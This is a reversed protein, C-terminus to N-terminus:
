EDSQNKSENSKEGYYPTGSSGSEVPDEDENYIGKHNLVALLKDYIKALGQAWFYEIRLMDDESLSTFPEGELNPYVWRSIYAHFDKIRQSRQYHELVFFHWEGDYHEQGVLGANKLRLCAYRVSEYNHKRGQKNFARQIDPVTLYKEGTSLIRLVDLGLEGYVVMNYM